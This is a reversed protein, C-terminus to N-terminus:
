RINYVRFEKASTLVGLDDRGLAHCSVIGEVAITKYLSVEDEEIAYIKILISSYTVVRQSGLCFAAMGFFAKSFFPIRCVVKDKELKYIAIGSYTKILIHDSSLVEFDNISTGLDHSFGISGNEFLVIFKHGDFTFIVEEFCQIKEGRRINIDEQITISGVLARDRDYKRLTKEDSNMQFYCREYTLAYRNEAVPFEYYNSFMLSRDFYKNKPMIVQESRREDGQFQMLVENSYMPNACFEINMNLEYKRKLNYYEKNGYKNVRCLIWLKQNHGYFVLQERHSVGGIWDITEDLQYVKTDQTLQRPGSSVYRNIDTKLIDDEVFKNLKHVNSRDGLKLNESVIDYAIDEALAETKYAKLPSQLLVNLFGNKLYKNTHNKYISQMVLAMNEPNIEYATQFYEQLCQESKSSQKWGTLLLRQAEEMDKLKFKEVRAANWYDNLKLHDEVTRKYYDHSLEYQQLMGYLDGVKETKNLDKYLPIAKDYLMGKEYCHAAAEKNNSHELYLVAAEEYFGGQELVNAASNYEKLLHAYIYAAKRYNKNELEQQAATRYKQQLEFYHNGLNWGYASYGTRSNKLSFNPTRRSLKYSPADEGRGLDDATLPIAYELAKSVNDDFMKLLKNLEKQQEKELKDLNNKFWDNLKKLASSNSHTADKSSQATRSSGSNTHSGSTGFKMFRAGMTGLFGGGIAGLGGLLGATAIIGAKLFPKVVKSLVKKSTTDKETEDLPIDALDKKDVENELTEVVEEQSESAVLSVSIIKPVEFPDYKARDWSQETAEVQLEILSWNFIEEKEWGILGVSPHFCQVPFLSIADIEQESVPPHLASEFPLYLQTGRKYYPYKIHTGDIKLQQELVVFLGAAKVDSLAEPVLYGKVDKLSLHHENLVKLWEMPQESPIFFADLSSPRYNTHKLSIIM